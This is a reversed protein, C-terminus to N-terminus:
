RTKTSERHNIMLVIGLIFALFLLIWVYDDIPMPDEFPPDGSGDPDGPYALLPISIFIGFLLFVSKLYVNKMKENKINISFKLTSFGL